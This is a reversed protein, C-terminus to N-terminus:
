LYKLYLYEKNYLSDELCKEHCYLEQTPMESENQSMQKQVILSYCPSQEITKGCFCCYYKM